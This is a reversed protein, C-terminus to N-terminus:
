LSATCKCAYGICVSRLIGLVCRWLHDLWCLASRKTFWTNRGHRTGTWLHRIRRSRKSRIYKSVLWCHARSSRLCWNSRRSCWTLVWFMIMSLLAFRPPTVEWSFHPKPIIYISGWNEYAQMLNYYMLQFVFCIEVGEDKITKCKFISKRM